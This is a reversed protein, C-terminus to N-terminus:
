STPREILVSDQRNLTCQFQSFKFQLYRSEDYDDWVSIQRYMRVQKGIFNVIVHESPLSM